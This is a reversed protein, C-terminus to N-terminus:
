SPPRTQRQRVWSWLALALAWVGLFVVDPNRFLVWPERLVVARIVLVTLGLLFLTAWVAGLLDAYWRFPWLFPEFLPEARESLPQVDKCTSSRQTGPRLHSRSLTSRVQRYHRRITRYADIAEARQRQDADPHRRLETLVVRFRLRIVTASVGPALGLAGYAHRLESAM